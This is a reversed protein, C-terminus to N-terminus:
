YNEYLPVYLIRNSGGCIMGLAASEENSLDYSEETIRRVKRAQEIVRKELVGGGITGIIKEGAVLMMTGIDRPASGTKRIIICLIGEDKAAALESSLSSGSDRNKELILEAAISVAIEEPTRAGIKLGIPAHIRKLQEELFGQEALLELTKKVKLRSGIMGLYSFERNLIQAVCSRDAAHGRTVVVYFTNKDTPLIEELTEFDHCYLHDAEPFLEKRVFEERDDIVTVEFDLFSGLRAVEKGVHGGGLVVLKPKGGFWVPDLVSVDKEEAFFQALAREYLTTVQGPCVTVKKEPYNKRLPGTYGKEILTQLDKADLLHEESVGLAQLIPEIRHGAEKVSKGIASFGTVIQIEGANDPIVPEDEAPYKVPKGRSGDTEVLVEDAFGCVKEYVEKPLPGMKGEEALLGAMCYGETELKRCISDAEGSLDCGNELRMHTTTTVLVKKGEMRYKEALKHIRTTKGGSGAVAIIM